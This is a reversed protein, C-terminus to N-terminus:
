TLSSPGMGAGPSTDEASPRSLSELAKEVPVLDQTGDGARRSGVDDPPTRRRARRLWKPAASVFLLGAAQVGLALGSRRLRRRVRWGAGAGAGTGVGTGMGVDRARVRGRASAAM